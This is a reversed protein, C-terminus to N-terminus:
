LMSTLEITCGGEVSIGGGMMLDWMSYSGIVSHSSDYVVIGWQQNPVSASVSVSGGGGGTPIDNIAQIFGTPFSLQASTGGKTRIADAVSTLETDTVLYDAM